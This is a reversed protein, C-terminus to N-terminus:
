PQHQLRLLGLDRRQAALHFLQALLDSVQGGPHVRQKGRVGGIGGAGGPPVGDVCVHQVLVPAPEAVGPRRIARLAVRPLLSVLFAVGLWGSARGAPQSGRKASRCTGNSLLWASCTMRM